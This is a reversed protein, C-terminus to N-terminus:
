FLSSLWLVILPIFFLTSLAFGVATANRGIFHFSEYKSPSAKRKERPHKESSEDDEILLRDMLDGERKKAIAVPQNDRSRRQAKGAAPCYLLLM